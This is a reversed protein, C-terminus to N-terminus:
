RSIGPGRSPDAARHPVARDLGADPAPKCATIGRVQTQGFRRRGSWESRKQRDPNPPVSPEDTAAFCPAAIMRPLTITRGAHDRGM